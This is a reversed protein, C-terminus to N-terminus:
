RPTWAAATDAESDQTVQEAGSGDAGMVWLLNNRKFGIRTGDPSWTPDQDGKRSTLQVPDEGDLGATWIGQSAARSFAVHDGDPSIAPDNDRNEADTIPTGEGSSGVPASVLAGGDQPNEARWYVVTKGDPSLAPDGLTGRDIQRVVTGDLQMERLTTVRTTPNACPVVLSGGRWAPRQPMVCEPPPKAFLPRDGEGDTGVVRLEATAPSIQRVYVVTRRDDSIIPFSDNTPGTVLAKEEGGAAAVTAIDWDGGEAVQRPYVIVDEDLAAGRPVDDAAASESASPSPTQGDPTATGGEDDSWPSTVLLAVVAAVAAAAVGAAVIRARGGLGGTGGPREPATPYTTTADDETGRGYRDAFLDEPSRPVARHAV